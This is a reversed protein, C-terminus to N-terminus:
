GTARLFEKMVARVMPVPVANGTQKRIQNDSGTVEFSDPFGQLRLQERPTLRREGNVLLYNYSAGARLACSFPHSNVNGGKNEHWISPTVTATHKAKRSKRIRESVFYRQDVNSELIETLPAYTEQPQPWQFRGLAESDRFGVIIFRERKQPLGFNIANLVTHECVYGEQELATIIRNKTRGRDHTAIQKVNELVFGKPQKGRLIRAIEYILTGRADDMGARNGIISFPQCPFGACLLDHDPILEIPVGAIDGSPNIGFNHAYQSQAHEDIDCAFVCRLGLDEAAYHFGGIGCFLDAFTGVAEEQEKGLRQASLGNPAACAEDVLAVPVNDGSQARHRNEAPADLPKTGTSPAICADSGVLRSEEDIFTLQFGHDQGMRTSMPHELM